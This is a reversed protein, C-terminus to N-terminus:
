LFLKLDKTAAILRDMDEFLKRPTVRAYIQTTQINSHGLMRSITEIPVGEDLTILSAFSHRGAHYTLAEPIGTLGRLGKMNAKVVDASQHPFLTEREADRYKDLLALAEPLLKVRAQYDTKKRRYKLWLAGSEDTYLNEGTLRSVDAYSTGTYCAFLFLDRSLSLSRREAPIDLDRIKEFSARSLAKPTTEVQRPLKYYAFHLKESHGEKFALRCIKKVVALYHRVTQLAYGQETQTFDQYERIFQENLQGFALDPLGFRRRIFAELSRRTYVYTSLTTRACDIGVRSRLGEIYRDLLRLLTMRTELSGQYQCKVAEADFGGPRTSLSKVAEHIGLLLKEIRANTEVAERSKGSLRRERVNWLAPTCTLKSSFQVMSRGVTVRCMIPAQGSATLSSRKLYLLVKCNVEKM